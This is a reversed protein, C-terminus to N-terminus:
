LFVVSNLIKYIVDKPYTVTLKWTPQEDVINYVITSQLHDEYIVVNKHGVLIHLAKFM